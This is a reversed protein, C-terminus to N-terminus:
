KPKYKSNAKAATYKANRSGDVGKIENTENKASKKNDNFYKIGDSRDLLSNNTFGRYGNDYGARRIAEANKVARFIASDTGSLGKRIADQFASKKAADIDANAAAIAAASAHGSRLLSDRKAIVAQVGLDKELEANVKAAAEAYSQYSELERDMELVIREAHVPNKRGWFTTGDHNREYAKQAATRQAAMGKKTRDLPSGKEKMGSIVGRGFGLVAGSLKGRVGEGHRIGTAFGGVAGFATGVAAGGLGSSFADKVNKTSLGFDFKGAGKGLKPFLEKILNPVKAAFIFLGLILYVKVFVMFFTDNEM